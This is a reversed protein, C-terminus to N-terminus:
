YELRALTGRYRGSGFVIAREGPIPTAGDVRGVPPTVSALVRGSALEIVACQEDDWLCVVDREATSAEPRWRGKAHALTGSTSLTGLRGVKVAGTDLVVLMSGSSSQCVVKAGPIPETRKIGLSKPDILSVGSLGAQIVVLDPASPSGWVKDVRLKISGRLALRGDKVLIRDVRRGMNNVFVYGPERTEVLGWCAAIAPSGAIATPLALKHLRKNSKVDWLYLVGSGDATVIYPASRMYIGMGAFASGHKLETVLTWSKTNYIRSEREDGHTVVLKGSPDV